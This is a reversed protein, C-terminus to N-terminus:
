YSWQTVDWVKQDPASRQTEPTSIGAVANPFRWRVGQERLATLVPFPILVMDASDCLETLFGLQEEDLIMKMEVLQHIGKIVGKQTIRKQCTLRDCISKDQPGCETGDSFKMGHSPSTPILTTGNALKHILM